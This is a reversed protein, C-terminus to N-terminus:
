FNVRGGNCGYATVPLGYPMLWESSVRKCHLQSAWTYNGLPGSYSSYRPKSLFIQCVATLTCGKGRYEVLLEETFFITISCYDIDPAYSIDGKKGFGPIARGVVYSCPINQHVAPIEPFLSCLIVLVSIPGGGSLAIFLKIGQIILVRYIIKWEITM